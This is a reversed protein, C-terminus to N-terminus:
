QPSSSCPSNISHNIYHPFTCLVYSWLYIAVVHTYHPLMYVLDQTLSEYLVSVIYWLVYPHKSSLESPDILHYKFGRKALIGSIQQGDKLEESALTGVVKAIKEGKFHLMVSQTNKPTYIELRSDDEKDEYERDLAAKLHLM